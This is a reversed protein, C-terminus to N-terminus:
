PRGASGARGRVIALKDPPVLETAALLDAVLEATANVGGGAPRLAPIATGESSAPGVTRLSPPHESDM